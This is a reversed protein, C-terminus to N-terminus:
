EGGQQVYQAVFESANEELVDDMDALLEADLQEDLVDEISDLTDQTKEALEANTADVAEDTQVDQERSKAKQRTKQEQVVTNGGPSSTPSAGLSNM